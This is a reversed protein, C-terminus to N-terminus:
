QQAEPTTSGAEIECIRDYSPQANLQIEDGNDTNATSQVTISKKVLISGEMSYYKSKRSRNPTIASMRSGQSTLFIRPWLKMIFARLTALSACLIGANLEMTSWMAAGASDWMFDKTNLITYLAPIRCSSAITAFSGLGLIIALTFKQRRAMVTHRLIFFPIILLTLDSLINFVATGYYNVARNICRGPVQRDWYSRIPVCEFISVFLIATYYMNSCCLFTWCVIRIRKETTIRLYQVVISTKVLAIAIVWCIISGYLAKLTEVIQAGSAIETHRGLGHYVQMGQLSSSVISLAMALIIAIDDHSFSKIIYIRTYLRLAVVMLALAPFIIIISLIESAKNDALYEASLEPNSSPTSM